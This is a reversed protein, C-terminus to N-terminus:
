AAEGAVAMKKQHKIIIGAKVHKRRRGGRRRYVLASRVGSARVMGNSRENIGCIHM